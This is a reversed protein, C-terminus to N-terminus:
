TYSATRKFEWSATCTHAVFLSTVARLCLPRITAVRASVARQNAMRSSVLFPDRSSPMESHVLELRVTKIRELPGSSRRKTLSKSRSSVFITIRMMLKKTNHHVTPTNVVLARMQRIERWIISSKPIPCRYVSMNCKAYPSSISRTTTLKNSSNSVVIRTRSTCGLAQSSRSSVLILQSVTVTRHDRSRNTAFSNWTKLSPPEHTPLLYTAKATKSTKETAM